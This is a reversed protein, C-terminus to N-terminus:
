KVWELHVSRDCIFKRVHGDAILPAVLGNMSQKNCDHAECIDVCSIPKGLKRLHDAVLQRREDNENSRQKSAVRQSVALNGWHNPATIQKLAHSFLQM